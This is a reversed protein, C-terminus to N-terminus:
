EVVNLLVECDCYGGCSRFYQFTAEVDSASLGMRALVAATGRYNSACDWVLAGDRGERMNVGEPGELRKVFESWRPHGPKMVM